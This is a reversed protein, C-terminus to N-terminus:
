CEGINYPIPHIEMELEHGTKERITEKIHKALEIVDSTTAGGRNIIFNGHLTSVEAGGIRKGKLGCEEILAGAGIGDPNRFICGASKEGYPQTRMRYEVIKLQDKRAQEYKTLQFRGSVIINESNQFPSTRYSFALDAIEVLEGSKDIVGVHTLADCTEKGNAGANM